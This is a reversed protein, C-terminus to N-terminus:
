FLDTLFSINVNQSINFTAATAFIQSCSNPMTPVKSYYNNNNNNLSEAGNGNFNNNLNNLEAILSENMNPMNLNGIGSNENVSGGSGGNAIISCQHLMYELPLDVINLSTNLANISSVLTNASGNATSTSSSPVSESSSYSSSRSSYKDNLMATEFDSGM